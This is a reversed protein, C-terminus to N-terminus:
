VATATPRDRALRLAREVQPFVERPAHEGAILEIHAYGGRHGHRLGMALTHAHPAHRKSRAAVVEPPAWPDEAGVLCTLPARLDRLATLVRHDWGSQAGHYWDHLDRIVGAPLDETAHAHLTRTIAGELNPPSVFALARPLRVRGMLPAELRALRRMPLREGDGLLRLLTRATRLSSGVSTARLDLPPGLAVLSGVREDRALMPLLAGLSHGVWDIERTGAHRTVTGLLAPVDRQAWESLGFPAPHPESGLTGRLAVVYAAFGRAALWPALGQGGGLEFSLHNGGFGHCLVVPQGRGYRRIGLRCGDVMVCLEEDPCALLAYRRGVWDAYRDVLRM